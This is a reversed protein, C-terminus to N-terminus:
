LAAGEIAQRQSGEAAMREAMEESLKAVHGSLASIEADRSDDERDRQLKDLANAAYRLPMGAIEIPGKSGNYRTTM